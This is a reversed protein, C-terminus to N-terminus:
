ESKDEKKSDKNKSKLSKEPVRKAAKEDKVPKELDGAESPSPEITKNSDEKSDKEITDESDESDKKAGDDFSLADKKGVVVDEFVKTAESEVESQGEGDTETKGKLDADSEGEEGDKKDEDGTDKENIMDEINSEEGLEIVGSSFIPKKEISRDGSVKKEGATDLINKFDFELNKEISNPLDDIRDVLKGIHMNVNKMEKEYFQQNVVKDKYGLMFKNINGKIDNLDELLNNFRDELKATTEVAYEQSMIKIMAKFNKPTYGPVYEILRNVISNFTLHIQRPSIMKNDLYQKLEPISIKNHEYKFLEGGSTHSRVDELIKNVAEETDQAGLVLKIRNIVDNLITEYVLVLIYNPVKNINLSEEYGLDMLVADLKEDTKKLVKEMRSFEREFRNIKETINDLAVQETRLEDLANSDIKSEIQEQLNVLDTKIGEISKIFRIDIELDSKISQDLATDLVSPYVELDLDSGETQSTDDKTYEAVAGPGELQVRDRKRELEETIQKQRKFEEQLRKLESELETRLASEQPEVFDVDLNLDVDTPLNIKTEGDEMEKREPKDSGDSSVIESGDSSPKKAGKSTLASEQPDASKSSPKKGSGRKKKTKPM